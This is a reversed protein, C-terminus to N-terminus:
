SDLIYSQMLENPNSYCFHLSLPKYVLFMQKKSDQLSSLELSTGASETNPSSNGPISLLRRATLRDSTKKILASIGNM